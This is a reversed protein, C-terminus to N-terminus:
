DATSHQATTDITQGTRRNDTTKKRNDKTRDERDETKQRSGREGSSDQQRAKKEEM